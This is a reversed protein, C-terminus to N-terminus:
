EGLINGTSGTLTIYSSGLQKRVGLIILLTMQLREAATKITSSNSIEIKVNLKTTYKLVSLVSLCNVIM